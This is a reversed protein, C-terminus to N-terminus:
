ETITECSAVGGANGVVEGVGVADGVADGVGVGSLEGVGVADGV